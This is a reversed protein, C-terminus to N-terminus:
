CSSDSLALLRENEKKMQQMLDTSADIRNTSNIFGKANALVDYAEGITLGDLQQVINLSRKYVEQDTLIKIM